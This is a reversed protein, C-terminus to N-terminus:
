LLRARRALYGAWMRVARAVVISMLKRVIIVILLASLLGAVVDVPFHAGVYVRSVAVWAVFLGGALRHVSTMAPWMAAVLVMAFSAHGSPFSGYMDVFTGVQRVTQAGLVAAPRPYNFYENAYKLFAMDAFCAVVFTLLTVAWVQVATWEQNRAHVTTRYVAFVLLLTGYIPAYLFNGAVTGLAMFLDLRTDKVNNILRFLLENYGLWSYFITHM